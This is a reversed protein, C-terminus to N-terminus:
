STGSARRAINSADKANQTHQIGLLKCMRLKCVQLLWGKLGDCLHILIHKYFKFFLWCISKANVYPHLTCIVMSGNMKVKPCNNCHWPFAVHGLPWTWSSRPFQRALVWRQQWLVITWCFPIGGQLQPVFWQVQFRTATEKGTSCFRLRHTISFCSSRRYLFHKPHCCCNFITLRLELENMQISFVQKNKKVKCPSIIECGLTPSAETQQTNVM